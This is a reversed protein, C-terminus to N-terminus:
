QIPILVKTRKKPLSIRLIGNKLSASAKEPDIQEPLKIQKRFQQFSIRRQVSGWREWCVAESMKAKIEVSDETTNIEVGEKKVGPLDLTIVIEDGRDEMEHLPELNGNYSWMASRIWRELGM